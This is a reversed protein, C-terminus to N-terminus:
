HEQLVVSDLGWCGRPSEWALDLPDLTEESKGLSRRAHPICM